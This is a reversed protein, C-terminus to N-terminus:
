EEMEKTGRRIEALVINWKRFTMLVAIAVVNVAVYLFIIETRQLFLVNHINSYIELTPRL